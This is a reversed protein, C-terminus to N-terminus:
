AKKYACNGKEEAGSTDLQGQNVSITERGGVTGLAVRLGQGPEGANGEQGDLKEQTKASSGSPTSTRPAPVLPGVLKGGEEQRDERRGRRKIREEKRGKRAGVTTKSYKTGTANGKWLSTKGWLQPEGPLSHEDLQM